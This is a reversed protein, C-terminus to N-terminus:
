NGVRLLTKLDYAFRIYMYIYFPIILLVHLQSDEEYWVTKSGLIANCKNKYSYLVWLYIKFHNDYSEKNLKQQDYLQPHLLSADFIVNIFM